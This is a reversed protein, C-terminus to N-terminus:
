SYSDDILTTGHAGQLTRMRMDVPVLQALREGIWEPTRGLQLCVAICTIANEISAKDDFPIQFSSRIAGHDVDISCSGEQMHTGTVKVFARAGDLVVPAHAFLRRKEREKLTRDGGFGEDHADGINTLVGITPRIIPELREMEGPKSIGAEFIGLTHEAGMRLVSLPVGVQSNWSGPNRVINEEQHLMQWLWEKVITKGNSGTIGIVPIKFKARHRAAFQQLALLTDKVVILKADPFMDAYAEDVMFHGIGRKLLEPIHDHGDHRPGKLAIFLTGPTVEMGRSDIIVRDVVPPHEEYHVLRGDVAEAIMPVTYGLGIM